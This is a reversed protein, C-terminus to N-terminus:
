RNLAIKKQKKKPNHSQKRDKGLKIGGEDSDESRCFLKVRRRRTIQNEKM